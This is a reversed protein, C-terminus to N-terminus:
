FVEASFRYIQAAKDKYSSKPLGAKLCTQELFITRDWNNETAVQPLLLGSHMQLVIMLGDRGIQLQNVDEVRQLPSLVSIEIEIQNLEEESLPEFRPDDFAAAQAMEIVTQYLPKAARIIGICGRLMGRIKLTVFAGSNEKLIRASPEPVDFKEKNMAAVVAEKALNLLYEKDEKVLGQYKKKAPSGIAADRKPVPKSSVIMASLYGVVESFDGTTEGSTSYDTVVVEEGGLKKSAIMAAAMPGGGCAEARGSMLTGLLKDPDYDEVARQIHADLKRAEKEEHYHSLDSSAVILANENSLASALVEGLVRCTTEEQDGLVIAVLNFKGLVQQLFPLQVELAHEGRISGGTHGKNSQYVSPHISGIKRSLQKDIEVTGLPTQYADGDYVSAGQFFITHSPSIVVVVDYQQGELHKYAISATKGSYVYGAHPAIIAIPRGSLPKKKAKAFFEAIMKTLTIPDGPYFAGAVAPHRIVKDNEKNM